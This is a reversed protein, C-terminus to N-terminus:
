HPLLLNLPAADISFEAGASLTNDIVSVVPVPSTQAINRAFEARYQQILEALFTKRKWIKTEAVQTRLTGQLGILECGQEARSIATFIWSRDCIGFKGTAGPYEDLVVLVHRASSGQMKHTTVAYALDLDCGTGGDDEEEKEDDKSAPRSKIRPIEVRRPPSTFEVITFKENVAVVRGIEGNAVAIKDNMFTEM